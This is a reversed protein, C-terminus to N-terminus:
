PPSISGRDQPPLAGLARPVYLPGRLPRYQCVDSKETWRDTSVNTRCASCPIGIVRANVGHVEIVRRALKAEGPNREVVADLLYVAGSVTCAVPIDEQLRKM